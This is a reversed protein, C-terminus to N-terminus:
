RKWWDKAEDINVNEALSGDLIKSEVLYEKSEKMANFSSIINDKKTNQSLNKLEHVVSLRIFDSRSMGLRKAQRNSEDLVSESFSLLVNKMYM